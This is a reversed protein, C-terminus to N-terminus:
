FRAADTEPTHREQIERLASSLLSAMCVLASVIGGFIFVGRVGIWEGLAGAFVLGIPGSLGIIMNLLSLVRGQMQNPVITQLLATMPANGMAFTVGSLFWWFAAVLLMDSAMLATFAVALCSLAFFIMVTVTRQKFGSWVSIVVGGILMGIGALAEMFAVQNVGGGFWDKVLLPTLSFTPMIIMVVLGTVLYLMLIGRRTTVYLVGAKLDSWVSALEAPPTRLQPIKFFFLPTIGLLATAVDILLATQLPMFALALAALPAAAISMMGYVVQNWGAVRQLWDQPVLMATSAAAAPQQFAQMAARVFMLLYVQWLEVRGIAFLGILLLMCVATIGDAVIMVVRRNWRDAYTGGFPALLAHPLFGMIGAMALAAPSDTTDAIWWMLLFQTLASGVLSFAQGVWISFFRPQWREANTVGVHTNEAALPSSLPTNTQEM